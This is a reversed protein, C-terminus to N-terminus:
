GPRRERSRWRACSCPDLIVFLYIEGVSIGGVIETSLNETITTAIPFQGALGAAM